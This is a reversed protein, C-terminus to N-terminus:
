FTKAGIDNFYKMKALNYSYTIEVIKEEIQALNEEAALVEVMTGAAAELDLKKLMSTDVGFGEQYKYEAIELNEKAHAIMEDSMKLMEGVSILTEYSQRISNEVELKTQQLNLASKDSLLEAEKYQYDKEEYNNRIINKVNEIQLTREALAKKIELRNRLGAEIGAKVDPKEVKEALVDVLKVATDFDIKMVKKLETLANNLEGQAKTYEIQTGKYYINALLFDDKAKMGEEYGDKAFEYQKKAREMAKAKVELMKEAKLVDYYNKQILLAIQNRYIDYSAQTVDYSIESMLDLMKQTGYTGIKYSSEMGLKEGIRDNVKQLALDFKTEGSELDRKGEDVQQRMEAVDQSTLGIAALEESSLRELKRVQSDNRDLRSIGDYVEDQAKDLDKGVERSRQKGVSSIEIQNQVIKLQISNELGIKVADEITLEIVQDKMEEEAKAPIKVQEEAKAPITLSTMLLSFILVTIITKFYKM